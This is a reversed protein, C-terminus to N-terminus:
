GDQFRHHTYFGTCTRARHEGGKRALITRDSFLGPMQDCNTDANDGGDHRRPAISLVHPKSGYSAREFRTPPVQFCRDRSLVEPHVHVVKPYAQSFAM